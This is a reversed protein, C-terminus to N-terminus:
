SEQEPVDQRSTDCRPCIDQAHHRKWGRKKLVRRATGIGHEVEVKASRSCCDCWITILGTVSM